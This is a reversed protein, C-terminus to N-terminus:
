DDAAETWLLRQEFYGPCRRIHFLELSLQQRSRQAESQLAAKRKAAAFAVLAGTPVLHKTM